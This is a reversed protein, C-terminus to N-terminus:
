NIGLGYESLLKYRLTMLAVVTTKVSSVFSSICKTKHINADMNLSISHVRANSIFLSNRACIPHNEEHSEFLFDESTIIKIVVSFHNVKLFIFM